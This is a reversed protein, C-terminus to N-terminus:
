IDILMPEVYISFDTITISFSLVFTVSLAFTSMVMTLFDSPLITFAILVAEASTNVIVYLTFYLFADFTSVLIM